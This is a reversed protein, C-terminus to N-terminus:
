NSYCLDGECGAQVDSNHVGMVVAGGTDSDGIQANVNGTGGIVVNSDDYSVINRDGQSRISVDDFGDAGVVLSSRGTAISAGEDTVAVSPLWWCSVLDAAPQATRTLRTMGRPMKM